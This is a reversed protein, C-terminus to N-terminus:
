DSIQTFTPQTSPALIELMPAYSLFSDIWYTNHEHKIQEFLILVTCQKTQENITVAMLQHNQNKTTFFDYVYQSVISEIKDKNLMQVAFQYFRQVYKLSSVHINSVRSSESTSMSNSSDDSIRGSFSLSQVKDKNAKDHDHDNSEFIDSVRPSRSSFFEGWSATSMTLHNTDMDDMCKNPILSENLDEFFKMQDQHIIEKANSNWTVHDM